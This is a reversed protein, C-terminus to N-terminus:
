RRVKAAQTRRAQCTTARMGPASPSRPLQSPRKGGPSDRPREDGRGPAAPKRPSSRTHRDAGPERPPSTSRGITSWSCGAVVISRPRSQAQNRDCQLKLKVQRELPRLFGEGRCHWTIREIADRHDKVMSTVTNRWGENDSQLVFISEALHMIYCSTNESTSPMTPMFLARDAQAPASRSSAVAQPKAAGIATPQARNLQARAAPKQAKEAEQERQKAGLRSHSALARVRM